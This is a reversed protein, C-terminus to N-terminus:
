SHDALLADIRRVSRLTLAVATLTPNATGATPFVSSGVIFLNQHDFSRGDRDVVGHQGDAAMRCTGVIHGAGTYDRDLPHFKVHTGGIADFIRQIVSRATDFASYNYPDLRFRIQPRPIGLGDRKASLTVRNNEDPLMETSYSIRFERTLKEEVANRLEAGFFGAEVLDKVSQVPSEIRSGWGDNGLSLRFAAQHSRFPGDRFADIGSTTPPGRFPYLPERALCGGAGQPHDMLNRGVQGSTNALGGRENSLLLIKASEVAHAALVVIRCAVTEDSGDWRRYHVSAIAAAGPEVELRTVVAQDRLEAGTRLAKQVHVTADYKAQIPCIPVCSSNGACPPRDDYPRSNRAQPTRRVRLDIGNLALGEIAPKVRNDSYSAWIAPMPFPRSRPAGLVGNWEEHDGAVGLLAEATCYDPELDDYSIPWDVGRAYTTKLRFDAPVFRPVNGLFHWTSGGVRRLYTSRLTEPSEDTVNDYYAAADPEPSPAKADGARGLYPSGPTKRIARAFTGVLEIRDPGTEGAELILVQRGLKSLEYAAIAGCAGSGIIVVDYHQM